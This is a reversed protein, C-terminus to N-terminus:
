AARKEAIMLFCRLFCMRLSYFRSDIRAGSFPTTLLKVLQGVIWGFVGTLFTYHYTTALLAFDLNYLMQSTRRVTTPNSHSFDCNFFDSKWHTYDPSMVFFRGGPRLVRHIEKLAAVATATDNMHEFVACMIVLDYSGSPASLPPMVERYIRRLPLHECLQRLAEDPELIDYNAFGAELFKAAFDGRGPGIELIDITKNGRLHPQVFRFQQEITKRTLWNGISTPQSSSLHGFFRM